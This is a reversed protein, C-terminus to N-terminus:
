DKKPKDEPAKSGFLVEQSPTSGQNALKNKRKRGMKKHKNERIVRTQATASVM